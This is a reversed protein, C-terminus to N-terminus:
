NNFCIFCDKKIKKQFYMNKLLICVRKLNDVQKEVLESDETQIEQITEYIHQIVILFQYLEIEEDRQQSEPSSLLEVLFERDQFFNAKKQKNM